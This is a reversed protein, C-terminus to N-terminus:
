REEALAAVALALAIVPFIKILPGLPDAWLGPTLITGAALYALSVLIAAVAARRTWSRALLGLGILVDLSSGALVLPRALAAAATGGLARAAVDLRWCGILGSLVWFLALTLLLAPFVLRARAFVREQATAPLKALTEDLSGCRKGAVRAWPEPDGSVGDALIRLATTRVPSRWGVWGALDALLGITQGLWAPLDCRVRAPPFGLWRRYRAVIDRLSHPADEVLDYDRYGPVAGELALVVSGAVDTVAVTRITSDGLILPQILPFAALMRILATGGYANASLVLGPRFITWDLHSARAAADAEGKTRLFATRAAPDAGPASIQVFRRVGTAECAAILARIARSQSLALRDRSGDQLAGSANVVAEIRELHPRWATEATLHILDAGIWAIDPVQRRGTGASRALGIVEHGSARVARVIEQGILGHAGLVLVRM